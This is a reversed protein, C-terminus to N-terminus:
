TSSLLFPAAQMSKRPHRDHHHTGRDRCIMTNDKQPADEADEPAASENGGRRRGDAVDLADAVPPSVM